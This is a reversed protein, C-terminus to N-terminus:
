NAICIDGHITTGRVARFLGSGLFGLELIPKGVTLLFYSFSFLFFFMPLLGSILALAPSIVTCFFLGMFFLSLVETLMAMVIAMVTAMDM